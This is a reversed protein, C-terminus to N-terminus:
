LNRGYIEDILAARKQIYKDIDRMYIVLDKPNFSGILRDAKRDIVKTSAAGGVGIITQSEAIIKVNYLSEANERCFGVNDLEGKINGQRYLYYPRLNMKKTYDVAVAYMKHIEEDRPFQSAEQPNEDLIEKLKSGRKLTLSHLTVSDPMLEAIKAMTDAMDMASEGPLGVIVDMNIHFDGAARLKRFMDIVDQPSHRRGIIKLTRENMTQPNVSVRNVGFNKMLRIKEDSISDPRGAEVTFETTADQLFNETAMNLMAEFHKEPLSTPTGGGIYLSEVKLGHKRISAGASKIDKAFAAM